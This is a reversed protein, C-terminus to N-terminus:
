SNIEEPGFHMKDSQKSADKEVLTVLPFGIVYKFTLIRGGLVVHIKVCDYERSAGKGDIILCGLYYGENLCQFQSDVVVGFKFDKSNAEAM